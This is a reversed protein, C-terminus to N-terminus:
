KDKLELHRKSFSNRMMQIEEKFHNSLFFFGSSLLISVTFVSLVIFSRRPRSKKAAPRALDMINIIPVNKIEEIKAVEYQKKLEAYLTSNIEAERLLRGQELLLQPSDGIRRNKERFKKLTEESQNLDKEVEILRDEIWKRQESANTIRKTRIFEDLESLVKNVVDATLQPERMELEITAVGSKNDLSITLGDRLKELALEYSREPEEEGLEWYELLDVPKNFERSEYNTYLVNRLVTESKIISPYLKALSGDGSVSVGALAALDTLGGLGALKGRETEPLLTATSKFYEPMLLTAVISGVTALITVTAIVKRAQVIALLGGEWDLPNGSIREEHAVTSDQNIIDM